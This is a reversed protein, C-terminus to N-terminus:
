KLFVCFQLHLPPSAQPDPTHKDVVPFQGPEFLADVPSVSTSISVPRFTNSKTDSSQDSIAADATACSDVCLVPEHEPCDGCLTYAMACSMTAINSVLLAMALM